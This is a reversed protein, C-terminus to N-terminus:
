FFFHFYDETKLRINFINFFFRLVLYYIIPVNEYPKDSNGSHRDFITKLDANPDSTLLTCWEDYWYGSENILNLFIFYSSVIFILISYVNIINKNDLFKFYKM